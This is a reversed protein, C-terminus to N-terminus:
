DIKAVFIERMKIRDKCDVVGCKQCLSFKPKTTLPNMDNIYEIVEKCLALHKKIADQTIQMEIILCEGEKGPRSDFIAYYFKCDEEYHLDALLKYHVAQITANQNNAIFNDRNPYSVNWAIDEYKNDILGSYKIDIVCINDDKDLAVIDLLGKLGQETIKLSISWTDCDFGHKELTQRAALANKSIREQELSVVGRKGTLLQNPISGDRELAGTLEYEFRKGASISSNDRIIADDRFLSQYFQRPCLRGQKLYLYNKIASQTLYIKDRLEPLPFYEWISGRLELQEDKGGELFAAFIKEQEELTYKM